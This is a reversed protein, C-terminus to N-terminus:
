DQLLLELHLKIQKINANPKLVVIWTGQVSLYMPGKAPGINWTETSIPDTASVCEIAIEPASVSGIRLDYMSQQSGDDHIVVERQLTKSVIRCARLAVVDIHAKGKKSM